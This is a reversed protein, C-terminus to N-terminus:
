KFMLMVKYKLYGIINKPCIIVIIGLSIHSIIFCKQLGLSHYCKAVLCLWCRLCTWRGMQDDAAEDILCLLQHLHVWTGKPDIILWRLCKDTLTSVKHMHKLCLSTLNKKTRKGGSFQVLEKGSGTLSETSQEEVGDYPYM